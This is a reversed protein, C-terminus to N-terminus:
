LLPLQLGIRPIMMGFPPSYCSQGHNMLSGTPCEFHTYRLCLLAFRQTESGGLHAWKASNQFLTLTCLLRSIVFSHFYRLIHHTMKNTLYPNLTMAQSCMEVGLYESQSNLIPPMIPPAPQILDSLNNCDDSHWIYPCIIHGYLFSLWDLKIENAVMALGCLFEDRDHFISWRMSNNRMQPQNFSAKCEFKTLVQFLFPSCLYWIWAQKRQETIQTPAAPAQALQQTSTPQRTFAPKHNNSDASNFKVKSVPRYAAGNLNDDDEETMEMAQRKKGKAAGERQIKKPTLKKKPSSAEPSSKSSNAEMQNRLRSFRM